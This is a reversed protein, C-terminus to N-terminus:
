CTPPVVRCAGDQARRQQDTPLPHTGRWPPSLTLDKSSKEEPYQMTVKPRWLHSLTLAMGKLTARLYSVETGPRKMVKVGIAMLGTRGRGRGRGGGGLRRHYSRPRACLVATGRAAPEARVVRARVAHRIDLGAPRAAVLDRDRDGDPLHARTAAHGEM